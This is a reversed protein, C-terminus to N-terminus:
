KPVLAVSLKCRPIVVITYGPTFYPSIHVALRREVGGGTVYPLQFRM